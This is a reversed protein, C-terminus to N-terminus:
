YGLEKKTSPAMHYDKHKEPDYMELESIFVVGDADTRLEGDYFLDRVIGVTKHGKHIVVDGIKYEIEKM